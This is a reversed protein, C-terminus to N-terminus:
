GATRMNPSYLSDPQRDLMELLHELSHKYNPQSTM